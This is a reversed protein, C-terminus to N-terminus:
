EAVGPTWDLREVGEETALDTLVAPPSTESARARWRLEYRRERRAGGGGYTVSERVIRLGAGILRRRLEEDPLADDITVLVLTVSRVRRERDELSQLPSLVVLAIVTAAIGLAIQGGGFCLGIVTVSWLAAATTVGLVLGSRRLIAGGGIFGIGTLIGLPLRMVDIQVFSPATKGTTSLLLNAQLMAVTAALCVLMTTRLGAARVRESRNWGILGSAVLSFALRLVIDWWTLDLRM